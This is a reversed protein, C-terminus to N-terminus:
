MADPVKVNGACRYEDVDRIVTSSYFSQRLRRFLSDQVGEITHRALRDPWDFLTRDRFAVHGALTVRRGLWNRGLRKSIPSGSNRRRVIEDVESGFKSGFGQLHNRFKLDPGDKRWDDDAFGFTGVSCDEGCSDRVPGATREIRFAVDQVNM